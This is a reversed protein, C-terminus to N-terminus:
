AVWRATQKTHIRYLARAVLRHFSEGDESLWGRVYELTQAFTAGQRWIQNFTPAIMRALEKADTQEETDRPHLKM